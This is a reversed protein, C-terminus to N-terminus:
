PLRKGRGLGLLLSVLFVAVFIYFLIRAIDASAGAIGGFGFIAAIIAIIFFIAAWRLM